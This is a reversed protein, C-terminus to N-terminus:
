PKFTLVVGTSVIFVFANFLLFVTLMSVASAISNLLAAINKLGLTESVFSATALTLWWLVMEILAPLNILVLIIIGIVGVTTKILSFSSMVSGLGESIIGGIVPVASGILFKAGKLAVTDAANAAFGKITLLGAFVTGFFALVINFVKKV